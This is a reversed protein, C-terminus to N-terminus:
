RKVLRFAFERGLGGKIALWIWLTAYPELLRSNSLPGADVPHFGIDRALGAAVHKAEADDGCYFM